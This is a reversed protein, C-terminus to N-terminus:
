GTSEGMERVVLHGPTGPIRRHTLILPPTRMGGQHPRPALVIRPRDVEDAAKAVAVGVPLRLRLAQEKVDAWQLEGITPYVRTSRSPSSEEGDLYAM